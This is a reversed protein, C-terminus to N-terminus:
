FRLSDEKKKAGGRGGKMMEGILACLFSFERKHIWKCFGAKGFRNKVSNFVRPAIVQLKLIFFNKASIVHHFKKKMRQAGKPPRILCFDGFFGKLLFGPGKETFGGGGGAFLAKTEFVKRMKGPAKRFGKKTKAIFTSCVGGHSNWSIQPGRVDRFSGGKEVRDSPGKSFLGM